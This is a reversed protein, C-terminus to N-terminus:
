HSAQLLPTVVRDLRAQTWIPDKDKWGDDVLRGNRDVTFSVPLHWIRGYGPVHPDGLLGVKFSLTDAVARVQKIDDASDLSFGLVVLGDKAHAQAFQSLLPLEERCPRCWTAWFTVIVVKGHLDALSVHQGDLANLTIPPAPEGVVLDSAYLPCAAISWGIVLMFWRLSYHIREVMDM